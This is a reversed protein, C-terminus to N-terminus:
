DKNELERIIKQCIERTVFNRASFPTSKEAGTIFPDVGFMAWQASMKEPAIGEKYFNKLSRITIEKCRKIANELSSHVSDVYQENQDMYHYNDDIKVKYKKNQRM